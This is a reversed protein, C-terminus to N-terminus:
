ADREGDSTDGEYPDGIGIRALLTRELHEMEEAEEDTQHDYGMLHLIGHVLLHSTHDSISIGKGAAERACTEHAMAIEGLPVPMGDPMPFDEAPFSLVNTPKDKGRWDRNLERIEEDSSLLLSVEGERYGEPKAAALSEACHRCITEIDIGDWEDNTSSIDFSIM